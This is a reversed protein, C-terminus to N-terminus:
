RALAEINNDPYIRPSKRSRFAPIINQAAIHTEWTRGSKMSPSVRNVRIMEVKVVNADTPARSRGDLERYTRWKRRGDIFTSVMEAGNEVVDGQGQGVLRNSNRNRIGVHGNM